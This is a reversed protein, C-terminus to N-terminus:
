TWTFSSNPNVQGGMSNSREPFYASSKCSNSGSPTCNFSWGQNDYLYFVSANLGRGPTSVLPIQIHLNGNSTSILDFDSGTFVGGPPLGVQNTPDLLSTQQARALSTSLFISLALFFLRGLHHHRQTGSRGTLRPLSYAPPYLLLSMLGGPCDVAM